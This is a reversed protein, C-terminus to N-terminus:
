KIVINGQAGFKGIKLKAHELDHDQFEVSYEKFEISAIVINRKLGRDILEVSVRGDGGTNKAIFTIKYPHRQDLILPSIIFSDRRVFCIGDKLPRINHGKWKYKTGGAVLM